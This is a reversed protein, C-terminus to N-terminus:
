GAKILRIILVIVNISIIIILLLRCNLLNQDKLLSDYEVHNELAAVQVDHRSKWM